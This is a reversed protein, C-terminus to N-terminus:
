NNESHVRIDSLAQVFAETAENPRKAYVIGYPMREEWNVPITILSPHADAWIDYTQLLYGSQECRNFVSLDYHTPCTDLTVMPHHEKIDARIEAVVPSDGAPVMMVTEGDLDEWELQSKTSLPHRRPVGLCFPIEDILLINAAQRWHDSDCPALFCDIRQGLTDVVETLSATDDEFPVIELSIDPKTDGLSEWMQILQRCPRLVSTGIRVTQTQGKGLGRAKARTRESLCQLKQAGELLEKGAPTLQIGRSTRKLLKTGVHAELSDMQKKVSVASLYHARAAKSFSGSEAVQIFMEVRKDLM